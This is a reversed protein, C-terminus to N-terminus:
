NFIISISLTEFAVLFKMWHNLFCSSGRRIRFSVPRKINGRWAVIDQDYIIFVIVTDLEALTSILFFIFPTKGNSICIWKASLSIDTKILFKDYDSCEDYILSALPSINSLM